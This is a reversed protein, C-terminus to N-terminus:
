MWKALFLNFEARLDKMVKEFSLVEDEMKKYDLVSDSSVHGAHEKVEVFAHHANENISHKLEDINNRQVIFQNQFHEVGTRAEMNSNRSAIETLRGDLILLENKYFDLKNLWERHATGLHETNTYNM